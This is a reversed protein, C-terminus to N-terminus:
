KPANKNADPTTALSSDISHTTEAVNCNANPTVLLSSGTFYIKDGEQIKRKRTLIYQAITNYLLINFYTQNIM